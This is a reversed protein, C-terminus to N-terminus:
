PHPHLERESASSTAANEAPVLGARRGISVAEVSSHADLKSLVNAIHTRVTNVSLYLERAIAARNHGAMMWGLVEIERSSLKAVRREWENAEPQSRHLAEVLHPVLDPPVVKDGGAAAALTQFVVALSASRDVVGSAGARFMRVAEDPDDPRVLAVIAPGPPTEVLRRIFGPVDTGFTTGILLADFRGDALHAAADALNTATACLEIDPRGALWSSVADTILRDRDVILIRLM